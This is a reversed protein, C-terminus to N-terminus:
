RLFAIDILVRAVASTLLTLARLRVLANIREVADGYGKADGTERSDKGCTSVGKDEGNNERNEPDRRLNDPTTPASALGEATGEFPVGSEESSKKKAAARQAAAVPPPPPPPRRASMKPM